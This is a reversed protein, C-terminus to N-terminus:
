LTQDTIHTVIYLLIEYCRMIILLRTYYIKGILSTKIVHRAIRKDINQMVLLIGQINRPKNDFLEKILIRTYEAQLLCARKIIRM